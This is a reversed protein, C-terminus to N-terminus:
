CSPWLDYIKSAFRPFRATDEVTLDMELAAVMHYAAIPSQTVTVVHVAEKQQDYFCVDFTGNQSVRSFFAQEGTLLANVTGVPCNVGFTGVHREIDLLENM